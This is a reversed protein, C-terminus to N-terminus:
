RLKRFMYATLVGLLVWFIGNAVTSAVIFQEALAAPAAGAHIDSPPAGVAHPVLLVVIGVGNLAVNRGFAILGLGAGTCIVTLLWWLQRGELQAVEAGPIEPPMGIAPALFFVTFGALGWLVGQPLTIHNRLSYAAALLLGFGVATAINAVATWTTRELGDAPSWAEHDHAHGDGHSSSSTPAAPEYSEAELIIPIVQVTQVLSLVLGALLGGIGGALLIRRFM